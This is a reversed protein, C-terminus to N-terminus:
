YYQLHASLYAHQRRPLQLLLTQKQKWLNLTDYIISIFLAVIEYM